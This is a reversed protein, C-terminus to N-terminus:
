QEKKYNIKLNEPYSEELSKLQTIITHLVAEDKKSIAGNISLLAYGEKVDYSYPGNEELANYGGFVIASVAACCLDHGFPGSGAHGKVLIKEIGGKGTNIEIRIM